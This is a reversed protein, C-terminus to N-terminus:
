RTVSIIQLQYIIGALEAEGDADSDCICPTCALPRPAPPFIDCSLIKFIM